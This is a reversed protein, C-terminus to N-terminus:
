FNKISAHNMAKAVSRLKKILDKVDIQSPRKVLNQKAALTDGRTSEIANYIQIYTM